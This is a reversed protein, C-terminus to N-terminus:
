PGGMLFVVAALFPRFVDIKSGHGPLAALIGASGRFIRPRFSGLVMAAVAVLVPGSRALVAM